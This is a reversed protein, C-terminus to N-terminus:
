AIHLKLNRHKFIAHHCIKAQCFRQRRTVIAIFRGLTDLGRIYKDREGQTESAKFRPLVMTGFLPRPRFNFCFPLFQLDQHFREYHLVFQEPRSTQLPSICVRRKLLLLSFKWLWPNMIFRFNFLKVIFRKKSNVTILLLCNCWLRYFPRDLLGRFFVDILLWTNHFCSKEAVMRKSM